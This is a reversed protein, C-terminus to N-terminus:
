PRLRLDSAIAEQVDVGLDRPRRARNTYPDTASVTVMVEGGGPLHALTQSLYSEAAGGSGAAIGDDTITTLSTGDALTRTSCPYSGPCRWSENGTPSASSRSVVVQLQPPSSPGEALPLTAVWTGAPYGRPNAVFRGEGHAVQHESLVSALALDLDRARQQPSAAGLSPAAPGIGVADEGRLGPLGQVGLAGLAVVALAAVARPAQVRVLRRRRGRRMVTALDLDFAPAAPLDDIERRLRLAVEDENVATM